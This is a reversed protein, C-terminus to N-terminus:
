LTTFLLYINTKKNKNVRHITPFFFFFSPGCPSFHQRGRPDPPNSIESKAVGTKSIFFINTATGIVDHTHTYLRASSLSSRCEVQSWAGGAGDIWNEKKRGAAPASLPGLGFARQFRCLPFRVRVLTATLVRICLACAGRLHRALPAWCKNRMVRGQEKYDIKM